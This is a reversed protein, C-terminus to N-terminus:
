WPGWARAHYSARGHWAFRVSDISVSLAVPTANYVRVPVSTRQSDGTRDTAVVSANYAGARSFLHVVVTGNAQAGDGFSWTLNYPSGSGGSPYGFFSVNLPAFGAPPSAPANLPLPPFPPGPVAVAHTRILRDGYRDTVIETLTYNGATYYTHN